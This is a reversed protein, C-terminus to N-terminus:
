KLEIFPGVMQGEKIKQGKAISKVIRAKNGVESDIVFAEPGLVAANGIVTKGYLHTNPYIITDAGVKVDAGIYTNHPDMITVGELMLQKNIRMKIAEGAEYLQWRNNVGMMEAPNELISAGVKLGEKRFMELLDTLYLEGQANNTNLNHLHAFLEKNDFVYIGANVEKVKDMAEDCDAQEVIAEVQDGARNRKIRGYGKPNDVIATLLTLSNQDKIHKEFLSTFTESTVVPTDGCCVITYGEKGELLPAAQMVAHGTGKQELQWVVKSSDEVLSKTVEGGFGVVTIIEAFDLPKLADLVYRVLPKHLIEYSVKSKSQDLSLMRTGKGAALIVAYNKM